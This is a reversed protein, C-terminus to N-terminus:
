AARLTTYGRNIISQIGFCIRLPMKSGDFRAVGHGSESGDVWAFPLRNSPGVSISFFSHQTLIWDLSIRGDVEPAIEPMRVGAPLARILSVARGAVRDDIAKAGEGDWNEEECEDVLALIESIMSAKVGFLSHSTEANQILISGVERVINAELSVATSFESFPQVAEGTHRGFTIVNSPRSVTEQM